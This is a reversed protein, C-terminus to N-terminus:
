HHAYFEFFADVFADFRDAPLANIGAAAARGGGTPFRRCLMDAGHKRHLPARVSVLWTGDPRATLVAHARDPHENALDNSWVGSVRRAWKEDPLVFVAGVPTARLPAIAEAAELDADYGQTLKEFTAHDHRIFDRPDAFPLLRAYLEAPAFHLDDLSAGYGNYNICTGLRHLMRTDLDSLGIEGALDKAGEDLNDGFAGAVAWAAFRSHLHRNVLLSTCTDPSTDVLITLRPHQQVTGTFHHDCYFVSAGRDLAAVVATRNKDFSLDLVTVADGAEIDARAVLEIDRKVGTVLRSDRPEAHRLQLLACIGDADGNFVDIYAM